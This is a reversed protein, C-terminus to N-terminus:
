GVLVPEEAYMVDPQEKRAALLVVLSLPGLRGAFMLIEVIIRGAESLRPTVDLSLGVTSFASVVEFLLHEAAIGTETLSLLLTAGGITALMIIVVALAKNVSEQTLTRKFLEPRRRGSVTAAVSAFITAVTNVKAGGGTGASAAGIFMLFITLLLGAPALSLPPMTAYGATRPQVALNVADILQKGAEEGGLTAPNGGEILWFLLVGLVFLGLHALLVLRAHLSLAVRINRAALLPDLRAEPVGLVGRAGM